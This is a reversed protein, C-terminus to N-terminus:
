DEPCRTWFQLPIFFLLYSHSFEKQFSNLFSLFCYINGYGSVYSSFCSFQETKRLLSSLEKQGDHQNNLICTYQIIVLMCPLQCRCFANWFKVLNSYIQWRSTRPSHYFASSNFMSNVMWYTLDTRLSISFLSSSYDLLCWMWIMKCHVGLFVFEKLFICVMEYKFRCLHYSISICDM